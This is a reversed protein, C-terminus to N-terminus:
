SLVGKFVWKPNLYKEMTLNAAQTKEAGTMDSARLSIGFEREFGIRLVRQVEDVSAKENLVRANTVDSPVSRVTRKVSVTFRPSPTLVKRLIRLDTDVLLTGHVLMANWKIAGAMGSIKKGQSVIMNPTRFEADVSLEKLGSIVALGTQRFMEVIGGVNLSHLDFLFVSYNLNGTDHYVAGGGTFRRAIAINKERCIAVNTELRPCQFRGIVVANANVWFRVTNPSELRGVSQLVAEEIALNLFPSTSGPSLFRWEELDSRSDM